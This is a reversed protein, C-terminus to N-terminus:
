IRPLRKSLSEALFTADCSQSFSLYIGSFKGHMAEKIISNCLSGVLSQSTLNKTFLAPNKCYKDDIGMFAQSVPRPTYSRFLKLADNVGYNTLIWNVDM